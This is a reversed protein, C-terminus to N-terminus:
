LPLRGRPRRLGITFLAFLASAFLLSNYNFVSTIPSWLIWAVQIALFTRSLASTRREFLAGSWGLAVFLAFSLAIGVDEILGRLASYVNTFSDGVDVNQDGYLGAERPAAGILEFIGAFSRAGLTQPLWNMSEDFWQRLAFVHGVGSVALVEAVQALEDVTDAGRRSLQVGFMLAALAVVAVSWLFRTWGSTPTRSRSDGFALLAAGAFIMWFLLNAKTTLLTTWGLAPVLSMAPLIWRKPADHRSAYWGSVLASLYVFTLLARAIGSANFDYQYRAVSAAAAAVVLNDVSTFVEYGQGLDSLLLHVSLYAPLLCLLGIKWHLSPPLQQNWPTGNRSGRPLPRPRGGGLKAGIGLCLTLGFILLASWSVQWWPLTELPIASAASVGWILCWFRVLLTDCRLFRLLAYLGVIGLTLAIM